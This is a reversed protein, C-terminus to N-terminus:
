VSMNPPKRSSPPRAPSRRPRLRTKRAPTITKVPADNRFPIASEDVKRITARPRCPNPAAMIAGAASEIRVVVNRSPSGRVFAIPTQAAIAVPPAATPSSRPPM